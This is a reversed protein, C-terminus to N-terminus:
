FMSNVTLTHKLKNVGCECIAALCVECGASILGFNDLSQIPYNACYALFAMERGNPQMRITASIM